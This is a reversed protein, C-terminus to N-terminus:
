EEHDITHSIFKKKMCFRQLVTLSPGLLSVLTIPPHIILLAKSTARSDFNVTYPDRQARLRVTNYLNQLNRYNAHVQNVWYMCIM